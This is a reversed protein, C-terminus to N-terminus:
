GLYGQEQFITLGGLFVGFTYPMPVPSVRRRIYHRTDGQTYATRQHRQWVQLLGASLSTCSRRMSGRPFSTSCRYRFTSIGLIVRTKLFVLRYVRTPNVKIVANLLPLTDMNIIGADGSPYAARAAYVEERLQHQEDPHTALEFLIWGLSTVTTEYGAGLLTSIM